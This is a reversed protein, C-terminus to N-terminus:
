ACGGFRERAPIVSRVDAAQKRARDIRAEAAARFLLGRLRAPNIREGDPSVLERGALRWGAWPGYLPMHGEVVRRYHAAACANPKTGIKHCPRPTLENLM